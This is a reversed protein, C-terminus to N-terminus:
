AVATADGVLPIMGIVADVVIQSTSQKENFAGQVTGWLWDSADMAWRAVETDSIGSGGSM